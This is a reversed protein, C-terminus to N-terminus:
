ALNVAGPLTHNVRNPGGLAPAPGKPGAIQGAALGPVFGGTLAGTDITSSEARIIFDLLELPEPFPPLAARPLTRHIAGIIDTCEGPPLRLGAPSPSPRLDITGAM